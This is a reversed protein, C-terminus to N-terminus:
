ECVFYYKGDSNIKMEQYNDWYTFVAKKLLALLENCFEIKELQSNIQNFTFIEETSMETRYENISNQLIEARIGLSDIVLLCEQITKYLISLGSELSSPPPIYQENNLIETANILKSSVKEIYGKVQDYLNPIDPNTQLYREYLSSFREKEERHSFISSSRFWDSDSSRFDVEHYKILAMCHIIQFEETDQTKNFKAYAKEGLIEVQYWTFLRKITQLTQGQYLLFSVQLEKIRAEAAEAQEETLENSLTGVFKILEKREKEIKIIAKNWAKKVKNALASDSDIIERYALRLGNMKSTWPDLKSKVGPIGKKYKKFNHDLYTYFHDLRHEKCTFIMCQTCRFIAKKACSVCIKM